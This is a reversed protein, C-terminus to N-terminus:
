ADKDLLRRVLVEDAGSLNTSILHPTQGKFAKVIEDPVGESSLVFLASTGPVVEKRVQEAFDEDIGHDKLSGAVSGAAAGVAAGIVPMMFLTGLALGWFSGRKAGKRGPHTLQRAQPKDAGYEWTLVAADHVKIHGARELEKLTYEAADAGHPTNFKWATLTAVVGGEVSLYV